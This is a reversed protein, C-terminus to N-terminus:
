ASGARIGEGYYSRHACVREHVMTGKEAIARDCLLPIGNAKDDYDGGLGRADQLEDHAQREEPWVVRLM